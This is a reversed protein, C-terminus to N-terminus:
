PANEQFCTFHRIRKVAGVFQMALGSDDHLISGDAWFRGLVQSYLDASLPERNETKVFVEYFLNSDDIAFGEWGRFPCLRLTRNLPFAKWLLTSLWKTWTSTSSKRPVATRVLM